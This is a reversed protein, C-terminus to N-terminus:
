RLAWWLIQQMILKLSTQSSHLDCFAMWSNIHQFGDQYHDPLSYVGSSWMALGLHQCSPRQQDPCLLDLQCQNEGRVLYVVWLHLQFYLKVLGGHLRHWVQRCPVPCWSHAPLYVFTRQDLPLQLTTLRNGHFTLHFTTRWWPIEWELHTVAKVKHISTLSCKTPFPSPHKADIKKHLWVIVHGAGNVNPHQKSDKNVPHLSSVSLSGINRLSTKANLLDVYLISALKLTTLISDEFLISCPQKIGDVYLTNALFPYWM